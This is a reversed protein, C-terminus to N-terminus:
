AFVEWPFVLRWGVGRFLNGIITLTLFVALVLTFRALRVESPAAGGAQVRRGYGWIGALGAALPLWGDRLLPDMLPFVDALSGVEDLLVLAAAAVAGVLLSRAFLRRGRRSRFWIGTCRSDDDPRTFPLMVLGIVVLAPIVVAGVLPHIHLLLEQLGAFYWAAKAPNPPYNPDAAALLPADVLSSWALMFAIVILAAVIEVSVLAPNTAILRPKPTDGAERFDRPISLKDKRVRWIHFSFATVFALPLLLTHLTYVGRLTVAGIDNGGVLLQRLGDGIMPVYSVLGSLITIAWYSLQDWPLVYGSFSALVVGLLLLLGLLWNFRRPQRFAATYFVRLMHLFAVVVLLNGCWHHLNRILQGFWTESQLRVISAYAEAPSPVYAFALMMGTGALMLFLLIALGGLGYTYSLRLLRDPIFPPHLHQIMGPLALRQRKRDGAPRSRDNGAKLRERQANAM